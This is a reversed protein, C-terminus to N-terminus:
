LTSANLAFLDSAIFPLEFIPKPKVGYKFENVCRGIYEREIGM